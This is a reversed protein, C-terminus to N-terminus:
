KEQKLISELHTAGHKLLEEMIKKSQIEDSNKIAEFLSKHFSFVKKCLHTDSFFVSSFHCYVPKFSNILLPYLFNSSSEAILHHISFDLETIAQIDNCDITEERKIYSSFEDLQMPSINRAALGANEVEFLLRMDLISKQIHPALQDGHYKSLSILLSLSGEKRIDNVVTGSRPKLTVLGKSALELLGEHVVPRSVKLQLALERESPLAEGSRIKGSLILEEFRSVFVEKMSKTAIPELLHQLM